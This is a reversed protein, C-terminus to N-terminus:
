FLYWNYAYEEANGSAFIDFYNGIIINLIAEFIKNGGSGGLSAMSTSGNVFWDYALMILGGKPSLYRGSFDSLASTAYPLLKLATKVQWVPIFDAILSIYGSIDKAFRTSATWLNKADDFWKKYLDAKKQMYDKLDDFDFTVKLEKAIYQLDLCTFIETIIVGIAKGAESVYKRKKSYSKSKESATEEEKVDTKLKSLDISLNTKERIYEVLRFRINVDKNFVKSLAKNIIADPYNLAYEVKDIFANYHTKISYKWKDVLNSM